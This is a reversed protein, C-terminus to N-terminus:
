RRRELEVLARVAMPDTLFGIKRAGAMQLIVMGLVV